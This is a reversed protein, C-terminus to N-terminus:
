ELVFNARNKADIYEKLHEKEDVIAKNTENTLYNSYSSYTVKTAAFVLPLTKGGKRMALGALVLNVIKNSKSGYLKTQFEISEKEVKLSKVM